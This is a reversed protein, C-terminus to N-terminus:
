LRYDRNIVKVSWLDGLVRSFFPDCPRVVIGEAAEGNPYVQKDALTQLEDFTMNFTTYGISALPVLTTDLIVNLNMTEIASLRRRDRKDSMNFIAMDVWDIGLKNKQIGSGYCEGQIVLWPYEKLKTKLDYKNVAQWFKNTEHEGIQTNRSCVMLEDNDEDWTVTLSSGEIKQTIYVEMGQIEDLARIKYALNTEDTKSVLHVPFDGKTCMNGFSTRGKNSVPPIYKKIGMHDTLDYGEIKTEDFQSYKLPSQTDLYEFVVSLPIVIGQSYIKKIINDEDDRETFSKQKVRFKTERMFEFMELQPLVSDYKVFMVLDGVKHEKECICTFGCDKLHVLEIRDKNPIPELSEVIYVVALNDRETAETADIENLETM